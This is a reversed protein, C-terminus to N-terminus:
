YWYGFSKATSANRHLDVSASEYHLTGNNITPPQQWRYEPGLDKDVANYVELDNKYGIDSIKIKSWELAERVNLESVGVRIATVAASDSIVYWKKVGVSALVGIIILVSLLEILTFGNENTPKCHKPHLKQKCPGDKKRHAFVPLGILATTFVPALGYLAPYLGSM